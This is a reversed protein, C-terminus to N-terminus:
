HLSDIIYHIFLVILLYQLWIRSCHQIRTMTSSKKWTDFSLCWFVSGGAEGGGGYREVAEPSSTNTWDAWRVRAGEPSSIRHEQQQHVKWQRRVKNSPNWLQVTCSSFSVYYWHNHARPRVKSFKKHRLHLNPLLNKFFFLFIKRSHNFLSYSCTSESVSIDIKSTRSFRHCGSIAVFLGFGNHNRHNM